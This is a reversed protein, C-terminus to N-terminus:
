VVELLGATLLVTKRFREAMVWEIFDKYEKHYNVVLLTIECLIVDEDKIYFARQTIGYRINRDSM